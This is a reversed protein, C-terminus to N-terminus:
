LEAEHKQMKAVHESCSALRTAREKAIKIRVEERKRNREQDLKYERTKIEELRLEEYLSDLDDDKHAIPAPENTATKIEDFQEDLNRRVTHAIERVIETSEIRLTDPTEDDNVQPLSKATSRVNM